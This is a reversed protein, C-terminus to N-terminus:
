QLGAAAAAKGAEAQLRAKLTPLEKAHSAACGAVCDSM